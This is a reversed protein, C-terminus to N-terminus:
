SCSTSLCSLRQRVATQLTDLDDVVTTFPYTALRATNDLDIPRPYLTVMRGPAETIVTPQTDCAFVIAPIRCKGAQAYLNTVLTDSIGAVCKAVTNSTAPGVVLTHYHGEYLFGVPVSSATHDQYIRLRERLADQKYGYNGLIEAAARTVFLDVDDLTLIFDLTERLWHGSGTLGWALRPRNASSPAYHEPLITPM